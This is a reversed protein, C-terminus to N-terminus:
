DRARPSERRHLLFVGLLLPVAALFGVRLSVVSALANLLIPAGTVSVGSALSGLAAGRRLGLGPVRILQDLLLPYLPSIGLGALALAATALPPGVPAACLLSGLVALIAGTGVVPIRGILRPVLFRGAAMGAPFAAAAGAAAATGLGSDQLRAAGWVVFFFEPSIAGVMALWSRVAAAVSRGPPRALPRPRAPAPSRPAAAPRRAFVLWLLVPAALLLAMRGHGSSAEVASLLLPAAIGTVNSMGVAFTLQAAADPGAVLVPGTLNAFAGGVGLLLAGAQAAPIGGASAMLVAGSAMGAASLRLVAWPGARLLLEGTLGALLLGAGFGGSLWSLQGRPVSLDRSLLILCPGLSTVLFGICAQGLAIAAQPTRAAERWRRWRPSATPTADPPPATNVLPEVDM